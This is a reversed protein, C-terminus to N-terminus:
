HQMKWATWFLELGEVLCLLAIRAILRMILRRDKSAWSKRQLHEWCLNETESNFFSWLLALKLTRLVESRSVCGQIM